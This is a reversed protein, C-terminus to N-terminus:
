KENLVKKVSDLLEDVSFPKKLVLKAHTLMKAQDLLGSVSDKLQSYSKGGGSILIVDISPTNKQMYDCLEFGDMDPMLIDSIVLDIKSDSLIKVASIGNDAQIVTYGEDELLYAIERRVGEVDDVILISKAM